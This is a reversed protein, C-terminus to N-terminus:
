LSLQEEASGLNGPSGPLGAQGTLQWAEPNELSGPLCDAVTSTTILEDRGSSELSVTQLSVACLRLFPLINQQSEM